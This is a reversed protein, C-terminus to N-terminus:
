RRYEEPPPRPREAGRVQAFARLTKEGDKMRLEIDLMAFASKETSVPTVVIRYKANAEVTEVKAEFDLVSTSVKAVQIPEGRLAEVEITKPEAKADANWLLLAPTMRAPEPIAVNMTLLAPEPEGKISVRINASQAGRRDGINYRAVLEGREGATYTTKQLTAVACDCSSKVSAITVAQTGANVFGFKAEALTDTPRPNLDIQTADWKLEASVLTVCAFFGTSAILLSSLSSQM